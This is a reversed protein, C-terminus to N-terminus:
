FARQSECSCDTARPKDGGRQGGARRQAATIAIRGDHESLHIRRRHVLEDVRFGGWYFPFVSSLLAFRSPADSRAAEHLRVAASNRKGTERPTIIQTLFNALCSDSKTISRCSRTKRASEGADRREVYMQPCSSHLRAADCVMLIAVISETRRLQV